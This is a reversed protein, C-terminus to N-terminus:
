GDGGHVGVRRLQQVTDVLRDRRELLQAPMRGAGGRAALNEARVILCYAGTSTAAEVTAITAIAAATM